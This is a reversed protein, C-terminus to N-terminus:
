FIKKSYNEIISNIVEKKNKNSLSINTSKLANNKKIKYMNYNRYIFYITIIISLMFFKDHIIGNYFKTWWDGEVIKYQTDIIRDAYEKKATCVGKNSEPNDKIFNCTSDNECSYVSTINECKGRYTTVHMKKVPYEFTNLAIAGGLLFVILLIVWQFISHSQNGWVDKNENNGGFVINDAIFFIIGLRIILFVIILIKDESDEIRPFRDSEEGYFIANWTDVFPHLFIDLFIDFIGDIRFFLFLIIISLSIIIQYTSLKYFKISYLLGCILLTSLLTIQLFNPIDYIIADMEKLSEEDYNRLLIWFVFYIIFIAFFLISMSIYFYKINNQFLIVFILTGLIAIINMISSFRFRGIYPIEYPIFDVPMNNLYIIYVITISIFLPLMKSISISIDNVKKKINDNYNTKLSKYNTKLSKYYKNLLNIMENTSTNINKSM